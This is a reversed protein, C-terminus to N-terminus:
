PGSIGSQGIAERAERDVVERLTEIAPAGAREASWGLYRGLTVSRMPMIDLAHRDRDERLTSEPMVGFALGRRVIDLAAQSSEVRYRLDLEADTQGSLEEVWSAMSTQQNTVVLPLGRLDDWGRVESPLTRGPGAVVYVPETFLERFEIGPAYVPRSTLALDLTGDSLANVLGASVGEIFSIRLQPFLDVMAAAVRGFLLHGLAPNTGFSVWGSHGGLAASIEERARAVHVRMADAHRLLIEGHPTLRVGGPGRQFVPVGLDQELAAIQRSLAPQAIRLRAAAATFSGAEAIECFYRLQRSEM